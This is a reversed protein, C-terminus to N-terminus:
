NANLQFRAHTTSSLLITVPLRNACIKPMATPTHPLQDSLIGTMTQAYARTRLLFQKPFCLPSLKHSFPIEIAREPEEWSITEEMEAHVGGPVTRTFGRNACLTSSLRYLRM